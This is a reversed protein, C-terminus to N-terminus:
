ILKDLEQLLMKLFIYDICHCLSIDGHMNKNKM